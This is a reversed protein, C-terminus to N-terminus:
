KLPSCTPTKPEPTHRHSGVQVTAKLVLLVELHCSRHHCTTADTGTQVRHDTLDDGTECVLIAHLSNPANRTAVPSESILVIGKLPVKWKKEGTVQPNVTWRLGATWAGRVATEVGTRASGPLIVFPPLEGGLGDVL